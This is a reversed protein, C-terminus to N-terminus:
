WRTERQLRPHVPRCGPGVLLEGEGPAEHEVRGEDEVRLKALPDWARAESEEDGRPQKRVISESWRPGQKSRLRRMQIRFRIGSSQELSKLDTSRAYGDTSPHNWAHFTSGSPGAKWAKKVEEAM